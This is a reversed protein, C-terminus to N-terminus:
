SLSSTCNGVIKPKLITHFLGVLANVAEDLWYYCLGGLLSILFYEFLLIVGAYVGSLRPQMGKKRCHMTMQLM